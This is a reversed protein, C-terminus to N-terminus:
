PGTMILAPYSAINLPTGFFKPCHLPAMAFRLHLILSWSFNVSRIEAMQFAFTMWRGGKSLKANKKLTDYKVYFGYTGHSKEREFANKHGEQM